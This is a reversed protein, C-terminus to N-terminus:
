VWECLKVLTWTLAFFALSVVVYLLDLLLNM